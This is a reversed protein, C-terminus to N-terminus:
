SPPPSEELSLCRHLFLRAKEWDRQVTRESFGSMAAIEVFSLGGFYKLDVVQALRPEVTALREIANSLNQLEGLDPMQEPLHTRLSTLEFGSGRKLAQGHRAYDIILGRMARAAYALFRAPDPFVLGNRHQLKLYVEHLLTTAGLTLASGRRRLQRRALRRLEEYLTVFLRAHDSSSADCAVRLQEARDQSV